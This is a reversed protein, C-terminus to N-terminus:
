ELAPPPQEILAIAKRLCKECVSAAPIEYDFEEGIQIIASEEAGCEDCEPVRTWTDNGMVADVTDTEDGEGGTRGSL